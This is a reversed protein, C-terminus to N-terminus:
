QLAASDADTTREDNSVRDTDVRISPHRDGCFEVALKAKQKPLSAPQATGGIRDVRSGHFHRVM